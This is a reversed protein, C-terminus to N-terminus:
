AAVPERTEIAAESRASTTTRPMRILVAALLAGVVAIGAAGLFAASYGDTLAVPNGLQDAGQSTALATMAALGLASGVQYSTNVIGSALGGEEPKASQIATGLSPIFALAMGTAAILSAPLVDVLFSGDPRVLSMVAMGAALVLLGAVIPAKPGFRAIVKPAVVVMLVMITLTMPLLAAGGEFAGYGLVQQLYLNLFFWMPIWAAGLLLQALNAAALNPIRFISLRMLPERRTAQIAVFLALLAVGGAIAGLTAASGWGEEPARVIGFVTLALGATATLAGAVDISGRRRPTSPMLGPVVALVALAIPLNVYFVWPWSIWETIVGGLFVGATGGAPAAAGYIAFAKMLEKQNGGFLMMLLTLASPAILAAGAGQVARAAIEVGTSDALGAALSGVALVLWGLSFVRKAGLLDSLRGGLLLLGGFAIVYANFVWSLSDPTFGVDARIEPLAVGIISTDMIVMFQALAIVALAAWRRPHATQMLHREPGCPRGSSSPHIRAIRRATLGPRGGPGKPRTPPHAWGGGGGVGTRAAWRRRTLETM